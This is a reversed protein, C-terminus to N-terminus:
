GGHTGEPFLQFLVFPFMGIPVNKLENFGIYNVDNSKELKGLEVAAFLPLILALSRHRANLNGM